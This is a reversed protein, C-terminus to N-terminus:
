TLPKFTRFEVKQLIILQEQQLMVRIGDITCQLVNYYNWQKGDSSLSAWQVRLSQTGRYLPVGPGFPPLPHTPSDPHTPLPSKQYLM